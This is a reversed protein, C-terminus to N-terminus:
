IILASYEAIIFALTSIYFFWALASCSPSSQMFPVLNLLFWFDGVASVEWNAKGVPTLCVHKLLLTQHGQALM